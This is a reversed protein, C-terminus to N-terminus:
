VRFESVQQPRCEQPFHAVSHFPYNPVAFYRRCEAHHMGSCTTTRLATYAAQTDVTSGKGAAGNFQWRWASSNATPGGSVKRSRSAAIISASVATTTDAAGAGGVYNKVANGEIVENGIFQM